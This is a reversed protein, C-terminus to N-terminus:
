PEPRPASRFDANGSPEVRARIPARRRAGRRVGDREFQRHVEAVTAQGALVPATTESACASATLAAALLCLPVYPAPANSRPAIETTVTIQESEDRLLFLGVLFMLLTAFAVYGTGPANPSYTLTGLTGVELMAILLRKLVGGRESYLAELIIFRLVFAAGFLVALNRLMDRRSRVSAFTTLLQVFFFTGFIAHLLSEDPMVLTFAQTCAAFLCLLVVLGSANELPKRQPGLLEAPVFVRSRALAGVLLVGLTLASLAPPVLRVGTGLRLGGLLAVTLFIGPLAFSERGPTM